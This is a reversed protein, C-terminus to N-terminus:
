KMGTTAKRAPAAAPAAIPAPVDLTLNAKALSASLTKAKGIAANLDAIAKPTQAKVDNYARMTQEGVPMTAMLGNKAQGVKVILSENAAGRGGGGGRGGAPATLKPALSALEAKLADFSAKVDAPVGDLKSSLENMQRTLSAHAATADAVAPQLAHVEMALDFMHKREASTLVVEPDEVVRLPKSDVAKGDVVLSVTYVGGLVFPGNPTAPAGGFGGGRGGGGGCGAGFPSEEAAQNQRGGGGAQEGRGAPAPPQPAPQVRLDWCATHIGAKNASALPAGSIERVERGAADTIKLAVDGAAKKHLWSIMAAQPPNEGFFAQDGWFEYNRDSAPRRYMSAPPPTFLKAEAAASQAAAYEQIPELHDLIWLARGHTALIMANDRPHLTIEDVRVTPLNAKV